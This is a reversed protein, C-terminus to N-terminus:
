RIAPKSSLGCCTKPCGTKSSIRSPAACLRASSKDYGKKGAPGPAETGCRSKRKADTSSNVLMLHSIQTDTRKWPHFVWADIRHHVRSFTKKLEAENEKM